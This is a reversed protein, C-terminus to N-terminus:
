KLLSIAMLIVGDNKMHNLYKEPIAPKHPLKEYQFWDLWTIITDGGKPFFCAPYLPLDFGENAIITGTETNINYNLIKNKDSVKGILNSKVFVPVSTFFTYRDRHQFIKDTKCMDRDLIQRNGFDIHYEKMTPAKRDFVQISSWLMQNFVVFDDSEVFPSEYRLMPADASYALLRDFIKLNKDLYFIAYGEDNSDGDYKGRHILFGYDTASIASPLTIDIPRSRLHQGQLDYEVIQVKLNDLIYITDNKVSFDAISLYEEPGRGRKDIKTIIKGQNDFIFLRKLARPGDLVYYRDNSYTIKSIAGSFGYEPNNELAIFDYGILSKVLKNEEKVNEWTFSDALDTKKEGRNCAVFLATIFFLIIIKKM